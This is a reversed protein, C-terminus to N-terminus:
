LVNEFKEEVNALVECDCYGGYTDLWATIPAVPINRSELFQQTLRLTDDCDTEGLQEDLYDFLAKLETLPLPLNAVKEAKHKASLGALIEKRKQKDEKSPM